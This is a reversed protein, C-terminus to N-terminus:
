QEHIEFICFTTKLLFIQECFKNINYIYFFLIIIVLAVGFILFVIETIMIRKGLLDILKNISNKHPKSTTVEIIHITTTFFFFSIRGFTTTDLNKNLGDYSFDTLGLMGNKIFQFHREFITKVDKSETIHSIICIDILKQKLDVGVLLEHCKEIIEYKFTVVMNICNFEALDEFDQYLSEMNKQDKELDFLLYLDQYFNNFILNSDKKQENLNNGEEDNNSIELVNIIEEITYNNFVMLEYMNIAEYCSKELRANKKIINFLKTKTSFYNYWMIIFSMYFIIIILILIVLVILYKKIIDLNNIDKDSIMQKDKPFDNLYKKEEKYNKRNLYNKKSDNLNIKSKNNLHKSYDNYLLNLNQLAELPSTRYLELIIELNEIKQTFTDKFDYGENKKNMVLITYNLIRIIIKNFSILFLYLILGIILYLISNLNVFIFILLRILNSKNNLTEFLNEDIYAFKKSYYKYNLIMKYVEEQYSSMTNQNYLNVFPEDSKNLFFIPQTLTFNSDETLIGFSNCLILLADFFNISIESKGFITKENIIKKTIQIYPIQDYFLEKYKKEGIYDNIKIIKPKEEMMKQSLFKNQVILYETFDFTKDPNAKSYVQNFISIYNRCNKSDIKDPICAVGLISAFLQYYLRYFSRYNIYSNNNNSEDNKLKDFFLYEVIIIILILLISFYIINKIFNFGSFQLIDDNKLKRRGVSSAGKSYNSVQISSSVSNTEEYVRLRNNNIDEESTNETVSSKLKNFVKAKGLRKIKRENNLELTYINYVNLIIKYSFLKILKYGRTSQWLIYKNLPLNKLDRENMLDPESVGLIKEDFENKHSIDVVSVIINKSFIYNGNFLIFHSNDNNFLSSLRLTLLKYYNKDQYSEHLIVKIEIFEKKNIMKKSINKNKNEELKEQENNFGNFISNLFLDKQHQRLNIPFLDYLNKNIYSYLGKGARLIKCNYDILDFELTIINNNKNTLSFIDELPQINDRIPIQSNNITTNFIEEYIISCAILMNRSNSSNEIKHSFLYKKYKPNKMKKLLKSLTILKKAKFFNQSDNLIDKMLHLVKKGLSIFENCLILEKIQSQHNELFSNNEKNMIELIIRENLSLTIDDDLYDSYILFSLNIYYYSNNIFINKGIKKYNSVIKRIFKFYKKKGDYLLDFIDIIKDDSNEEKNLLSDNENSDEKQNINKEKEKEKEEKTRYKVYRECLYCLGCDKYHHNIKSEYLFEFDNRENIMNMYFFMNEIPSDKRIQIFSYPDYVFYFFGIFIIIIGISILLFLISFLNKEGIFFSLFVIITGALFLSLKARNLFSNKMFLYSHNVLKDIFYFFFFIQFIFVIFYCFKALDVQPADSAISLFIKSSFLYLDFLSGFQDYPYDLFQPVYYYLHNYSFNHIILYAHLLSLAFSILFYLKSLTFLLGYFFLTYLRFYFLELINIVIFIFVDKKKIDKQCLFLYLSDFILMSLIIILFNVYTPFTDLKNILLIIPSIIIKGNKSNRPQFGRNFIDIEQLLIFIIEILLFLFHVIKSRILRKYCNSFYNEGKIKKEIISNKRELM